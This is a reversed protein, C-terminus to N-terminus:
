EHKIEQESDKGSSRKIMFSGCFIILGVLSLLLGYLRWRNRFVFRVDHEGPELLVACFADGMIPVIEREIGDIYVKWGEDYPISSFLLKKEETATVTGGIESDSCREDTLGGARLKDYVAGLGVDDPMAFYMERYDVEDYCDKQMIISFGYEGAENEGLPMIHPMLLRSDTCNDGLDRSSCIMPSREDNTGKGPIATYSLTGYVAQPLVISVTGAEEVDATKRLRIGGKLPLLEVGDTELLVEGTYRDFLKEKEGTMASALSEQVEFPDPSEAKWDTLGADTMFAVPLTYENKRVSYQERHEGRWFGCEVSYKQSFIMQTFGTQGYDFLTRSSAGYGLKSLESRVNENELSSFWGLGRYGYLMSINDSPANMYHVRYFGTNGEEEEAIMGTANGAQERWLSYYVPDTLADESADYVLVMNMALELIILVGTLVRYRKIMFISAACIIIASLIGTRLDMLQDEPKSFNIKLFMIIFYMGSLILASLLLGAKEKKGQGPEYMAATCVLWFSFIWSFRWQYGDPADFAHMFLYAPGWFFCLMLIGLLFLLLLKKRRDGPKLFYATGFVASVAGTYVMPVSNYVYQYQGMFLGGIFDWPKLAIGEFVTNDRGLQSFLEIGAPLLVAAPILAALMVTLFYRICSGSIKKLDKGHFYVSYSIFFIFSAVGTIYACYFQITFSAAYVLCLKRWRGERIYDIVSGIILPFLWLSDFFVIGYYFVAVFGCLAYAAPLVVSQLRGKSIYKRIFFSMFGAAALLKALTLIFAARNIDEFLLVILNFPSLSYYANIASVPMGMGLEFTYGLGKGQSLNRLFLKIYPIYQILADGSIFIRRGGPFMGGFAASVVFILATLLMAMCANVSTNKSEYKVASM